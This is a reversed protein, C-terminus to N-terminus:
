LWNIRLVLEKWKSMSRCFDYTLTFFTIGCSLVLSLEVVKGETVNRLTDILKLKIQEDELEDVYRCCEQIMKVVAQKLQSRRKALLSIHENLVSWNKAEYCIQVIAVLVRSTSVMDSGQLTFNM